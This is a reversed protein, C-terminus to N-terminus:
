GGDLYRWTLGDVVLLMSVVRVSVTLEGYSKVVSSVVAEFFV